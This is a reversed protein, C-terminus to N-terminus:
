YIKTSNFASGTSLFGLLYLNFQSHCTASIFSFLIRLFLASLGSSHLCGPVGKFLSNSSASVPRDLGLQHRSIIIIIIRKSKPTIRTANALCFYCHSSQDKPEWWVVRVTFPMKCSGNVLGAHLKVCAVCSIHPAWSKDQDDVKYGL